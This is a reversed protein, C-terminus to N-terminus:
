SHLRVWTREVSPLMQTRETTSSRRTRSSRSRCLRRPLGSWRLATRQEPSVEAQLYLWLYATYSVLHFLPCDLFKVQRVQNRPKQWRLDFHCRIMLYKKSFTLKLGARCFKLYAAYPSTAEGRWDSHDEWHQSRQCQGPCSFVWDLTAGRETSPSWAWAPSGLLSSAFYQMPCSCPCSKLKWPKLVLKLLRKQFKM